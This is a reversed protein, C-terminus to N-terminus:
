DDWCEPCLPVMIGRTVSFAFNWGAPLVFVNAVGPAPPIPLRADGPVGCDGCVLEEILIDSQPDTAM